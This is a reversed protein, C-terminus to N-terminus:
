YEMVQLSGNIFRAMALHRSLSPFLDNKCYLNLNPDGLLLILSASVPFVPLFLKIYSICLPKQHPLPNSYRWRLGALRLFRRFPFRTGPAIVPGGQWQPVYIRPGPGRTQPNSAPSVFKSQLFILTEFDLSTSVPNDLELRLLYAQCFTRLTLFPLKGLSWLLCCNQSCERRSIHSGV